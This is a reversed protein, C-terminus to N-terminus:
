KVSDCEFWSEGGGIVRQNGYACESQVIFNNHTYFECLEHLVFCFVVHNCKRMLIKLDCSHINSWFELVNCTASEDTKVWVISIKTCNKLILKFSPFHDIQAKKSMKSVWLVFYTQMKSIWRFLEITSHVFESMFEM